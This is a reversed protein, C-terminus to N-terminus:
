AAPLGPRVNTLVFPVGYADDGYACAEWGEDSLKTHTQIERVAWEHLVADFDCKLNPLADHRGRDVWGRLKFQYTGQPWQVIDTLIPAGLQVGSRFHQGAPIRLKTERQVRRVHESGDATADFVLRWDLDYSLNDPGLVSASLGVVDAVRRLENVFGCDLNVAAGLGPYRKPRGLVVAVSLPVVSVGKRKGLLKGIEAILDLLGPTDDGGDWNTLDCAHIRRFGIPPEVPDLRAPILVSRRTGEEAEEGVWRADISSKSWLAVVCGAPTLEATLVDPWQKGPPIERDWFVSWGEATLREVLRGVREFDERAYSIFIDAM